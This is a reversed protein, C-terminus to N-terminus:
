LSRIEEVRKFVEFPINLGRCLPYGSATEHKKMYEYSLLILALEELMIERAKSSEVEELLANLIFEIEQKYQNLIISKKINEQKM